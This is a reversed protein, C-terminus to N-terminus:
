PELRLREMLRRYFYSSNGVRAFTSCYHAKRIVVQDGDVLEVMNDHGDSTLTAEHDMRVHITAVAEQHLVLARDLSLHPAVPVVLYNLLAPPLIPGGAALAYATSGTPTAAIVGDCVYHTVHAGDIFLELRLVRALKGRSVVFDNLALRRAASVGDRIIEAELMLRKELWHREELVAALKDAWADPQAESLFGLRGMNISFVPVNFPAAARAARLISGDGGIVIILTCRPMNADLYVRDWSSAIWAPAGRQELWAFVDDALPRTSEKKPHYLIGIM